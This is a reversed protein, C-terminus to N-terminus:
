MITNYMQIICKVYSKRVYTISYEFDITSSQEFALFSLLKLQYICSLIKFYKLDLLNNGIEL